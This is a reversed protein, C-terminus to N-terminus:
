RNFARLDRPTCVITVIADKHKTHVVIHSRCLQESVLHLRAIVSKHNNQLYLNPIITPKEDAPQSPMLAPPIELLPDVTWSGDITSNNQALHLFNVRVPRSSSALPYPPPDGEPPPPPLQKADRQDSPSRPESPTASSSKDRFFLMLALM